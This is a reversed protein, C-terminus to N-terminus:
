SDEIRRKLDTLRGAWLASYKDTWREYIQQIPVANFYLAKTRGHKESLILGARELVTLHKMVAIRSMDFHRCLDKVSGGPNARVIDLMTRRDAHALAQFVDSLDDRDSM